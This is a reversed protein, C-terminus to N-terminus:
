LVVKCFIREPLPSALKREKRPLQHIMFVLDNDVPAIFVRRKHRLYGFQGPTMRVSTRLLFGEIVDAFGSVEPNLGGQFVSIRDRLRLAASQHKRLSYGIHERYM